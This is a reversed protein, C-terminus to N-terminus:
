DAMAMVCYNISSCHQAWFQHSLEHMIVQTKPYNPAWKLILAKWDPISLGDKDFFTLQGSFVMLIDIFYGNYTTQHSVFGTEEIAEDLLDYLDHQGDTSDWDIWGRLKFDMNFVDDFKGFADYIYMEWGFYRQWGAPFEFKFEEDQVALIDITKEWYYGADAVSVITSPIVLLLMLIALLKLKKRWIGLLLWSGAIVTGLITILLGGTTGAIYPNFDIYPAIEPPYKELEAQKWAEYRQIDLHLAVPYIVTVTLLVLVAVKFLTVKMIKGRRGEVNTRKRGKV